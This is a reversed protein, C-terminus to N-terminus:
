QVHKMTWKKSKIIHYLVKFKLGWVICELHNCEEGMVTCKDHKLLLTMGYHCGPFGRQGKCGKPSVTDGYYGTMQWGISLEPHGASIKLKNCVSLLTAMRRHLGYLWLESGAEGAMNWQSSKVTRATNWRWSLLVSSYQMRLSSPSVQEM